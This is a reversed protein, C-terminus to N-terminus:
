FWEEHLSHWVEAPEPKSEARFRGFHGAHFVLPKGVARLASLVEGIVIRHDGGPHVAHVRCDLRCLSDALHPPRPDSRWHADVDFKERGRRAFHRAMDLQEQTLVHVAFPAGPAFAGVSPSENALCWLILPPQLSVSTFSNVTVGVPEGDPRVGTVVTVGTTFTGFADRLERATFPQPVARTAAETRM